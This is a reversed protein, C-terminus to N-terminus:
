GLMPLFLSHTSPRSKCNKYTFTLLWLEFTIPPTAAPCHEGGRDTRTRGSVGDYTNEQCDYQYLFYLFLIMSDTSECVPFFMAIFFPGFTLMFLTFLLLHPQYLFVSCRILRASM